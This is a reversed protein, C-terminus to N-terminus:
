IHDTYNLGIALIKGPRRIPAHLTVEELLLGGAGSVAAGVAASIRDWDAIVDCMDQPTDPVLDALAHVHGGVLLGAAPASRRSSFRVLKM